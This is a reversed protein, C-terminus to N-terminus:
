DTGPQPVPQTAEAIYQAVLENMERSYVQGPTGVMSRFIPFRRWTEVGNARWQEWLEQDLKGNRYQYYMFDTQRLTTHYLFTVMTAEVDSLEQLSEPERAIIEALAPNNIVQGLSAMWRDLYSQSVQTQLASTNQRVQFTLFILTVIVAISGVFEGLSGLDAISM